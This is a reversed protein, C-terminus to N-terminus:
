HSCSCQSECIEEVIPNTQNEIQQAIPASDVAAEDQKRMEYEHIQMLNFEKVMRLMDYSMKQFNEPALRVSFFKIREDTGRSCQSWSMEFLGEEKLYSVEFFSEHMEDNPTQDENPQTM